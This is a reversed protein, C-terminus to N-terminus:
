EIDGEDDAEIIALDLRQAHLDVVASGGLLVAVATCAAIGISAATISATLLSDFRASGQGGGFFSGGGASNQRWFVWYVSVVGLLGLAAAIAAVVRMGKAATRARVVSKVAQVMWQDWATGAVFEADDASGVEEDEVGV